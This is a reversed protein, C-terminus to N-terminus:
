GILNYMVEESYFPYKVSSFKILDEAPSNWFIKDENKTRPIKKKALEDSILFKKATLHKRLLFLSLSLSTRCCCCGFFKTWM